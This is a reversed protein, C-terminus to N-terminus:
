CQIVDNISYNEFLIHLKNINIDNKIEFPKDSLNYMNNESHHSCPYMEEYDTM